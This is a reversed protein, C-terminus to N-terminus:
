NLAPYFVVVIGLVPTFWILENGNDNSLAWARERARTSSFSCIDDQIRLIFSGGGIRPRDPIRGECLSTLIVFPM